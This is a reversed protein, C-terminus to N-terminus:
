DDKGYHADVSAELVVRIHERELTREQKDLWEINEDILRQFSKRNIRISV